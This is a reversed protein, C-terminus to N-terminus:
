QCCRSEITHQTSHITEAMTAAQVTPSPSDEAVQSRTYSLVESQPLPDCVQSKGLSQTGTKLEHTRALTGRTIAPVSIHLHTM